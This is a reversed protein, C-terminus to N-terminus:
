RATCCCPATRRAGRPRTSQFKDGSTTDFSIIVDRGAHARPNFSLCIPSQGAPTPRAGRPRTSQFQERKAAQAQEATAGRTPAHISVRFRGRGVAHLHRAGRPRTSQFRSWGHRGSGRPTAGRTPAHISVIWLFIFCCSISTAGRTPAHISVDSGGWVGNLSVTDRGAHARPNFSTAPPRISLSPLDRGAHARPNFSLCTPSQGAPTSDRGAHARPNFGFSLRFGPM